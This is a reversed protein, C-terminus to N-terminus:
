RTVRINKFADLKNNNKRPLPNEEIIEPEQVERTHLRREHYLEQEERQRKVDHFAGDKDYRRWTKGM